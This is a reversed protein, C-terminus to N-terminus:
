KQERKEKILYFIPARDAFIRRGDSSMSEYKWSPGLLWSAAAGGLFGGLHGWNDIGKSFLGIVMNLVIVQAIHQLDKGRGVLQRHRTAFVAVAGVLGFIAGSAGVAPAKCFWYSMVSSSIASAFYVALFRRPGSINEASPGLSNLSYCNVMLHGINAHLFSSTVLRWFQGKDILSNIKAGWLLLQGQTATQAIFILVNVALLINTWRRGNFSNRSSIKLHSARDNGFDKRTEGGNFFSSCTSYTATLTDKSLQLFNFEKFQLDKECWVDKLRPVHGLRSLKKFFYSSSSSHFLFGLRLHHSVRHQLLHGLHFCGATNILNLSTPAPGVESVSFWLPQPFASGVM